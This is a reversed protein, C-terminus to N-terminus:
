HSSNELVQQLESESIDLGLMENFAIAMGCFMDEAIQELKSQAETSSLRSAESIMAVVRETAIPNKLLDVLTSDVRLQPYYPVPVVDVVCFLPTDESSSGVFITHEGPTALWQKAQPNFYCFDAWNLTLTVTKTEGPELAVKAFAKLSKRERAYESEPFSLYLQVVEKGFCAGTNKVDVSVTLSEDQQLQNQQARSHQTSDLPLSNQKSDGLSTVTVKSMEFHTYSLGFGFPFLPTMNRKQYYRYGVFLGESYVHQGNEGPYSLYAPTEELCHPVTVTLKGSPNTYGFLVNAVARGMGQGSFFTEVVAKVNALWPMVVSDSNSLVVVLEPQVKAVAEILAQHQEIIDLHSRDGNEGDKGVETSAFLLVIDATKAAEVAKAFSEASDSGSIYSVEFDDGALEVIEDLPVDLYYPRTTACGSGQIVPTQAAEGMVLIRKHKEVRLPLLSQDNKLLVISESAIHQALAHHSAFDVNHTKERGTVAKEVLTLVRECANDLDAETVIQESIAQYLARKDRRSEPMALDNGALLSAPRDKVGYWDSIVLGDYGWSDRLVSSLLWQHQSTQVGNLRNYSSMVTWPNSKEIARKFGSLYIEQLAREEILSDMETRKFESNNAAFHKLSAGVGNDQMGNILGAALEGSVVPDESYYEYGRGSLPTRRINIGPGLLLDIGYHRCESALAQGMQYMLEVDWSCAVSSGNPFCTAPESLGFYSETGNLGDAQQSVVNLFDSICWDAGQEVQARNYRVGYTGDTMAIDKIGLQEFGTTRWLGQGHILDVKQEITMTKLLDSHQGSM